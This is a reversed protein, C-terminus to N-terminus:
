VIADECRMSIEYRGIIKNVKKMTFIFKIPGRPVQAPWGDTKMSIDRFYYTGKAIPCNEGSVQLNTNEGYRLTSEALGGFENLLKCFKMYPVGHIGRQYYGTGSPDMFFEMKVKFREDLDEFLEVTGNIVRDRGMLFLNSTDITTQDPELYFAMDEFYINYNVCQSFIFYKYLNYYYYQTFTFM